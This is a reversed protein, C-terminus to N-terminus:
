MTLFGFMGWIVMVGIAVIGIVAPMEDGQDALQGASVSIEIVATSMERHPSIEREMQLPLRILADVV